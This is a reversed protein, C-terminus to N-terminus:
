RTAEGNRAAIRKQGEAKVEEVLTHINTADYETYEGRELQDLGIDVERRLQDLRLQRIEDQEKLMRLGERVVESASHYMGTRVKGNIFDELEPTLSVNM